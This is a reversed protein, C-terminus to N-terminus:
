RRTFLDSRRGVQEGEAGDQSPTNKVPKAVDDGNKSNKRRKETMSKTYSKHKPALRAKKLSGSKKGGLKSVGTEEIIM